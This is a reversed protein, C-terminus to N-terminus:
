TRHRTRGIAGSAGVIQERLVEFQAESIDSPMVCAYASARGSLEHSEEMERYPLNPTRATTDVESVAVM